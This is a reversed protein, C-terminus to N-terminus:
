TFQHFDNVQEPTSGAVKDVVSGRPGLQESNGGDSGEQSATLDYSM